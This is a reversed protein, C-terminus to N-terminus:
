ENRYDNQISTKLLEEANKVAAKTINKGSLMYAIEMIRQEPTLLEIKSNAGNGEDTKYVRYHRSGYAAIQPLHTISIIQRGNKSMQLMTHAMQEAIRGSVGTDIEDFVIVQRRRANATVAKLCLMVRAIEGGSAIDSIDRPPTNKNASFLFKVTDAGNRSFDYTPKIDIDFLVGPMGLLALRQQMEVALIEAAKERSRTINEALEELQKKQIQLKKEKKSIIEDADSILSLQERINEAKVLLEAITKSKHKRELDYILTLREDIEKLRSPNHNDEGFESKLEEIIDDLEIRVSKMRESLSQVEPYYGAIRSLSQCGKSLVKAINQEGNDFARCIEYVTERIEEIHSLRQLEQELKEQEGDRLNAAELQELQYRLYDEDDQGHNLTNRLNELEAFCRIYEDYCKNYESLISSNEAVCDLVNLQFNMGGLLLNKHQSHIDILSCGLEKMQALTAPTDNIFARNKGNASVERRLICENDDFNLDNNVFFNSVEKSESYFVAEVVCKQAGPKIMRVDAREGLLLNVAGLLISKGAGTEGTIVSFGPFFDIDTFDILAYKQILLKKLM